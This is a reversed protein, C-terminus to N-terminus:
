ATVRDGLCKIVKREFTEPMSRLNARLFGSKFSSVRKQDDVPQIIYEDTGLKVNKIHDIFKSIIQHDFNSLFKEREYFSLWTLCL